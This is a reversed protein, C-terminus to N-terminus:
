GHSLIRIDPKDDVTVKDSSVTSEKNEKTVAEPAAEQKEVDEAKVTKKPRGM